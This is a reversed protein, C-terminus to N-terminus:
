CAEACTLTLRHQSVYSGLDGDSRQVRFRLHGGAADVAPRMLALTNVLGGLDKSGVPDRGAEHFRLHLEGDHVSGSIRLHLQATQIQAEPFDCVKVSLAAAGEGEVRDGSTAALSGDITWVTRCSGGVHFRHWTQSDIALTWRAVAPESPHTPPTSVTRSGPDEVGPPFPDTRSAVFAGAGAFGAFVLLWIIVKLLRRM